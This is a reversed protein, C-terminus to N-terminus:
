EVSSMCGRDCYCAYRGVKSCVSIKLVHFYYLLWVKCNELRKVIDEDTGSVDDCKGLKEKMKNLWESEVEIAKQLNEREDSFNAMVGELQNALKTATDFQKQLQQQEALLQPIDEDQNMERLDNIKQNMDKLVEQYYPAEEQFRCAYFYWCISTITTLWVRVLGHKRCVTELKLLIVTLLTDNINQEWFVKKLKWKLLGGEGGWGFFFFFVHYM